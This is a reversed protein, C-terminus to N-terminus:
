LRFVLYARACVYLCVCVCARVCVCVCLCVRVCLCVINMVTSVYISMHLSVSSRLFICCVRVCFFLCVCQSFNTVLVSFSNRHYSYASYATTVILAVNSM